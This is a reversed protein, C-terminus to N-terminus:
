EFIYLYRPHWRYGKKSKANLIKQQQQWLCIMDPPVNEKDIKHFIINFDEDDEEDMVLSESEFKTKWFKERSEANKRIRNSEKLQENIEDKTLYSKKCKPHVSSRTEKRSNRRSNVVKLNGCKSCHTTSGNALIQCSSSFSRWEAKIEPHTIDDLKGTIHPLMAIIEEGDNLLVGLCLNSTDLYRIVHSIQEKVALPSSIFDVPPLFLIERLDIQCSHAKITYTPSFCPEKPLEILVELTIRQANFEMKERRFFTFLYENSYELNWGDPLEMGHVLEVVSFYNSHMPKDDTKNETTKNKLRLNLFARRRNNRPGKKASKVKGGFLSPVCQGLFHPNVSSSSQMNEKDDKSLNIIDDFFTVANDCYEYNCLVRDLFITVAELHSQVLKFEVSFM